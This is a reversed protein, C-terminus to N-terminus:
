GYHRLFVLAAPSSDWLSGLRVPKGDLGPLRIAALEEMVLESPLARTFGSKELRRIDARAEAEIAEVSRQDVSKRPPV